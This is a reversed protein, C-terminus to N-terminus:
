LKDIALKLEKEKEDLHVMLVAKILNIEEKKLDKAEFMYYGRTTIRLIGKELDKKMSQIEWIETKYQDLKKSRNKIELSRNEIESYEERTM